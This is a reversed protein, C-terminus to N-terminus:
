EVDIFYSNNLEENPQLDRYIIRIGSHNDKTEIAKRLNNIYDCEQGTLYFEVSKFYNMLKHFSKINVEESEKIVEFEDINRQIESHNIQPMLNPILNIMGDESIIVIALPKDKGFNEYYRIASNYRAGRSADGKKSAIGDLIVGIAHCNGERDLLVAGDISTVQQVIADSLKLPKVPFCQAGLRNAESEAADSLVLMTGHLQKTAAIATDWLEDLNEKSIGQFIRKLDNYFKVKDIKEMPLKKPERYEVVMLPNNDHSLEWAFHGTFRVTFLSEDKPNYKGRLEGLGYIM